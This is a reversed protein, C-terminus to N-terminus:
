VHARGIENLLANCSPAHWFTGMDAGVPAEGTLVGRAHEWNSFGVDRAAHNLCDRLKLGSDADGRRAANLELRARTKLENLVATM